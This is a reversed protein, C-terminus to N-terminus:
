VDPLATGREINAKTETVYTGFAKELRRNYGQNKETVADVDRQHRAARRRSFKARKAQREELEAVMRDVNEEPIEGDGGYHIFDAGRNLDAGEGGALVAAKVYDAETFKPIKAVRKEHARYRAAATHTMVGLLPQQKGGHEKEYMKEAVEASVLRDAQSEDLGLEQLEKAKRKQKELHWRYKAEDSQHPDHHPIMQRRVEDVAAKQNLVRAQGSKQKLLLLKRQRPNLKALAETDLLDIGDGLRKQRVPDEEDEDEHDDDDEAGGTMEGSAAETDERGKRRKEEEELERLEDQATRIGAAQLRKQAAAAAAAADQDKHGSLEQLRRRAEADVDLAIPDAKYTRELEKEAKFKELLAEREEQIVGSGSCRVPRRTSGDKSGEAEMKRCVALGQVVRGFVTHRGDLWPTAALTIFFQSGNTNPGANAMSLLGPADHKLTFNEDNFKFGYISEGGTGNGLEFDGGQIM